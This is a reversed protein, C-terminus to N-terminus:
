IAEMNQKGHNCNGGRGCSKLGEKGGRIKTRKAKEKELLEVVGSNEGM